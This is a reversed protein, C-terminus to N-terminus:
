FGFYRYCAACAVGWFISGPTKPNMAAGLWWAAFFGSLIFFIDIRFDGLGFVGGAFHIGLYKKAMFTQHQLLVLIVAVSRLGDFSHLFQGHISSIEKQM